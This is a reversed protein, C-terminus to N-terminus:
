PEPREEARWTPGAHRLEGMLDNLALGITTWSYTAEAVKRAASGLQERLGADEIARGIQRVFEGPTDAILISKEPAVDIGECGISTSVIAKGMAMADLVKLRTGGGDRIPCVYVGAAGILPRVDDVFGTLRIAPDRQSLAVLERPPTRGIVTFSVGPYRAKLAPWVDSVFFLVADRNPYWKMGGAFVLSRPTSPEALPRFYSTDVGNAVVEVRRGPALAQLTQRDLESVALHADFRAATEIEYRQLKAAELHFYLKKLPNTERRARRRMMASEVNHHNLVKPLAGALSAYEALSITDFHVADFAVRSLAGEVARTMDAARLWNVTYPHRTVLSRVVLRRWTARSRDSPITVVEVDECIQKMAEVSQRLPKPSPLLARQNFAVLWIKNQRAMEKILNHSRQLVGGKPPYPVLHSVWLLNM